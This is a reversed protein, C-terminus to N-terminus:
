PKVKLPATIFREMANDLHDCWEIDTDWEDYTDSIFSATEDADLRLTTYYDFYKDAREDAAKRHELLAELREAMETWETLMSDFGRTEEAGDIQDRIMESLKM